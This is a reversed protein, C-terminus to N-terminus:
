KERSEIEEKRLEYKGPGVVAPTPLVAFDTKRPERQLNIAM